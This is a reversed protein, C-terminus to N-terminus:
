GASQILRRLSIGLDNDEYSYLQTAGNDLVRATQNPNALPGILDPAPQGPYTHWIRNELPM